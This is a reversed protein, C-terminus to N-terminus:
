KKKMRIENKYKEILLFEEVDESLYESVLSEIVRTINTGDKKARNELAGKIVYSVVCGIREKPEQPYNSVSKVKTKAPKTKPSTSVHKSEIEPTIDNEPEVVVTQSKTEEAANKRAIASDFISSKSVGM